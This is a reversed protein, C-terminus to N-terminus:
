GPSNEEPKNDAKLNNKVAEKKDPYFNDKDLLSISIFHKLIRAIMEKTEKKREMLMYEPSNTGLFGVALNPTRSKLFQFKLGEVRGLPDPVSSARPFVPSIFV